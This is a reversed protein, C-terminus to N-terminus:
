APSPWVPVASELVEELTARDDIATCHCVMM